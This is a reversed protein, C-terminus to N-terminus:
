RKQREVIRARIAALAEDCGDRECEPLIRAHRRAVEVEIFDDIDDPLSLVVIHLM